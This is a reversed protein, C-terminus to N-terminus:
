TNDGKMSIFVLIGLFISSLLPSVPHVFVYINFVYCISNVITLIICWKLTSLLNTGPFLSMDRTAYRMNEYFKNICNLIFIGIKEPM